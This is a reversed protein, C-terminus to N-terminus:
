RIKGLGTDHSFSLVLSKVETAQDQIPFQIKQVAFEVCNQFEPQRFDSRSTRLDQVKGEAAVRFYIVVIGNSEAGAESLGPEIRAWSNEKDRKRLNVEIVDRYCRNLAERNQDFAHQMDSDTLPGQLQLYRYPSSEALQTPQLEAVPEPTAILEHDSIKAVSQTDTCAHLLSLLSLFSIRKVIM